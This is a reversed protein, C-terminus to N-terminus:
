QCCKSKRLSEELQDIMQLRERMRSLMAEKAGYDCAHQFWPTGGEGPEVDRYAKGGTRLVRVNGCRVCGMGFYRYDTKGEIYVIEKLPIMSQHLVVVFDQYWGGEAMLKKERDRLLPYGNEGVMNEDIFTLLKCPKSCCCLQCSSGCVGAEKWKQRLEEEQRELPEISHINRFPVYYRGEEM